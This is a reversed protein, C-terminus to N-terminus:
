GSTYCGSGNAAGVLDASRLPEVNDFARMANTDPRRRRDHEAMDFTRFGPRCMQKRDSIQLRAGATEGLENWQREHGHFGRDKELAAGAAARGQALRYHHVRDCAKGQM